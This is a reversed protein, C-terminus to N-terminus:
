RDDGEDDAGGDIVDSDPGGNIAVYWEDTVSIAGVESATQIDTFVLRPKDPTANAGPLAALAPPTAVLASSICCFADRSLQSKALVSSRSPCMM